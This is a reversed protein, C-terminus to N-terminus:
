LLIKQLESYKNENDHVLLKAENNVSDILNKNTFVINANM